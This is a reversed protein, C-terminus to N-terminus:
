QLENLREISEKTSESQIDGQANRVAIRIIERYSTDTLEGEANGPLGSPVLIQAKDIKAPNKLYRLHYTVLTQGKGLILEFYEHGNIRGFPLRYAKNQNPRGFPSRITTNYQDHTLAYVSINDTQIVNNCDIYTITIDEEIAHRYDDPLQVFTGNPKNDTNNLFTTINANRTISQLNKVNQQTEELYSKKPNNGYAQQEVWEEQSDSLYLDIEETLFNASNLSDSKDVAIKFQIHMTDVIM